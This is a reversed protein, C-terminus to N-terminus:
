RLRQMSSRKEATASRGTPYKIGLHEPDTDYTKNFSLVLRNM